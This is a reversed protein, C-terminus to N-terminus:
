AAPRLVPGQGPETSPEPQNALRGFQARVAEAILQTITTPMPSSARALYLLKMEEEGIASSPWPYRYDSM